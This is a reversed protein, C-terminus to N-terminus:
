NSDKRRQEIAWSVLQGIGIMLPILGIGIGEHADVFYFFGMLGLGAGILSLASRLESKRKVPELFVEPPIPQGKDALKLVMENILRQRNARYRLVALVIIIPTGFILIVATLPVLAEIFSFGHSSSIDGLKDLGEIKLTATEADLLPLM